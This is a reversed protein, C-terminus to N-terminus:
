NSQNNVYDLAVATFLNNQQKSYVETYWNVQLLTLANKQYNVLLEWFTQLLLFFSRNVVPIIKTQVWCSKYPTTGSLDMWSREPLFHAKRQSVVRTHLNLSKKIKFLDPYQLICCYWYFHPQKWSLRYSIPHRIGWSICLSCESSSQPQKIGHLKRLQEQHPSVKSTLFYPFKNSLNIQFTFPNTLKRLNTSEIEFYPQVEGYFIYNLNQM